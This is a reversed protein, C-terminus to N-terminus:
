LRYPLMWKVTWTTISHLITKMTAGLGRAGSHIVEGDTLSIASRAIRADSPSILKSREAIEKKIQGVGGRVRVGARCFLLSGLMFGSWMVIDLSIPEDPDPSQMVEVIEHFFPHFIEQEIARMGLSSLYEDREELKINPGEWSSGDYNGKQFPLLLIDSVRSLAYLEWLHEVINERLLSRAQNEGYTQLVSMAQYAKDQWPMLVDRFPSEGEYNLLEEYLERFDPM